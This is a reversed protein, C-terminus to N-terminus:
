PISCVASDFEIFAPRYDACEEAALALLYCKASSYMSVVLDTRQELYTAKDEETPLCDIICFVSPGGHVFASLENYNPVINSLFNPKVMGTYEAITKILEKYKFPKEIEHAEKNSLKQAEEFWPELVSKPRDSMDLGAAEYAKLYARAEVLRLQIYRRAFDDNGGKVGELFIAMAKLMHELFVRFLANTCYLNGTEASALIGNKLSELSFVLGSLVDATNAFRTGKLAAPITNHVGPAIRSLAADRARVDSLAV